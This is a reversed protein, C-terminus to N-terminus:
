RDPLNCDMASQEVLKSLTKIYESPELALTTSGQRLATLTELAKGIAIVDKAKHELVAVQNLEEQTLTFISAM